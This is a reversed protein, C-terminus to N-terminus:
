GETALAITREAANRRPFGNDTSRETAAGSHALMLERHRYRAKAPQQRAVTPSWRITVGDVNSTCWDVLPGPPNRAEPNLVGDVDLFVRASM